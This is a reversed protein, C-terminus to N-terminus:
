LLVISIDQILPSFATTQLYPYDFKRLNHGCDISPRYPQIRELLVKASGAKQQYDGVVVGIERVKEGNSDYPELDLFLIHDTEVQNM